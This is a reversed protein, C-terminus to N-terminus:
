IHVLGNVTKLPLHMTISCETSKCKLQNGCCMQLASKLGKEVGPSEKMIHFHWQLRNQKNYTHLLLTIGDFGLEQLTRTRISSMNSNITHVHCCQHKRMVPHNILFHNITDCTQFYTLLADCKVLINGLLSKKCPLLMNIQCGPAFCSCCLVEVSLPPERVKRSMWNKEQIWERESEVQM